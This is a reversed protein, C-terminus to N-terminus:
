LENWNWFEIWANITATANEPLAETFHIEFECVLSWCPDIQNETRIWDEIDVTIPYTTGNPAKLYFDVNKLEVAGVIRQDGSITWDYDYIGIPITGCNHVDIMGEVTLSPYANNLTVTLTDNCGDQDTDSFNYTLTAVPGYNPKTNNILEASFSWEACVSGTNVTGILYLKESWHAYAFGAVGLVIMLIAFTAMLKKTDMEKMM